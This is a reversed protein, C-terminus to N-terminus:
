SASDANVFTLRQIALRSFSPWVWRDGAKACASNPEPPLTIWARPHSPAIEVTTREGPRLREVSMAVIPADHYHVSGDDLRDGNDWNCRYGVEIGRGGAETPTLAVEIVLRMALPYSALKARRGTLRCNHAQVRCSYLFLARLGQV